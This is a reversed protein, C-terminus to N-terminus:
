MIENMEIEKSTAAERFRQAHDSGQQGFGALGIAKTESTYIRSELHQMAGM